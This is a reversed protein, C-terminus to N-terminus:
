KATLQLNHKASEKEELQVCDAATIWCVLRKDEYSLGGIIRCAQTVAALDDAIKGPMENESRM